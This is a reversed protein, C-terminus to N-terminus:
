AVGRVSVTLDAAQPRRVIPSGDAKVIELERLVGDVVHLLFEIPVGDADLAMGDVPVREAVAAKPGGMVEFELSGYNDKYEAIERVRSQAVQARIEDRGRFSDQLLRELIAKENTKLGRTM